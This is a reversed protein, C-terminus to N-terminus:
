QPLVLCLALRGQAKGLEVPTELSILNGMKGTEPPIKEGPQLKWGSCYDEFKHNNGGCRICKGAKRRKEQIKQTVLDSSRTGSGRQMTSVSPSPGQSERHAEFLTNNILCATSILEDLTSINRVM